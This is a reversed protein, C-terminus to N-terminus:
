VPREVKRSLRPLGDKSEARNEEQLYIWGMIERLVKPNNYLRTHATAAWFTRLNPARFNLRGAVVNMEKVLCDNPEEPSLEAAFRIFWRNYVSAEGFGHSLIGPLRPTVALIAQLVLLLPAAIILVALGALRPIVLLELWHLWAIRQDGFLMGAIAASVGTYFAFILPKSFGRFDTHIWPYVVGCPNKSFSGLVLDGVGNLSRWAFFPLESLFISLRLCKSVEDNRSWLSLM